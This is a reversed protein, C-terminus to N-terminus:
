KMTKVIGLGLPRKARVSADFEVPLTVLQFITLVLYILIGLNILIPGLGFFFGGFM